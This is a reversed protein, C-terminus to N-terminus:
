SHSIGFVVSVLNRIPEMELCNVAAAIKNSACSPCSSSLAEMVFYRGSAGCLQFATLM